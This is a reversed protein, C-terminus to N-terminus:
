FNEIKTELGPINALINRVIGLYFDSKKVTSELDKKRLHWRWFRPLNEVITDGFREFFYVSMQYPCHLFTM